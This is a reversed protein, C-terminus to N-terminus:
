QYEKHNCVCFVEGRYILLISRKTIKISPRCRAISKYMEIVNGYCCTQNRPAVASDSRHMNLFEVFYTLVNNSEFEKAFSSFTM